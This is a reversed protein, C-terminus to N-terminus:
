TENKKPNQIFYGADAKILGILKYGESKLSCPVNKVQEGGDLLIHVSDGSELDELALKAKYCDGCWIYEESSFDPKNDAGMCISGPACSIRAALYERTM